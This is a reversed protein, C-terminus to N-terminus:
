NKNTENLPEIESNHTQSTSTPAQADKFVRRLSKSVKTKFEELEVEQEQVNLIHNFSYGHIQERLIKKKQQTAQSLKTIFKNIELASMLVNLWEAQAQTTMNSWNNQDFLHIKKFAQWGMSVKTKYITSRSQCCGCCLTRLMRGKYTSRPYMQDLIKISAQLYTLIQTEDVPDVYFDVKEKQIQKEEDDESSM